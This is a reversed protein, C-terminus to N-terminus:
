NHCFTDDFRRNFLWMKRPRLVGFDVKGVIGNLTKEYQFNYFFVGFQFHSQPFKFEREVASTSREWHRKETKM